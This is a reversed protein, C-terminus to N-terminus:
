KESQGVFAQCSCNTGTKGTSLIISLSILLPLLFFVALFGFLPIILISSISILWSISIGVLLKLFRFPKVNYVFKRVLFIALLCGLPMGLFIGAFVPDRDTRQHERLFHSEFFVSSVLWGAMASGIAGAFLEILIKKM